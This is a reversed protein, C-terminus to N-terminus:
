ITKQKYPLPEIGQRFVRAVDRSNHNMVATEWAAQVLQDRLDNETLLREIAAQIAEPQIDSVVYGFGAKRAYQATYTEDRAVVLMPVGSLMADVTKTPFATRLIADLPSGEDLVVLILDAKRQEDLVQDPPHFNVKWRPSDPLGSRVLESRSLKNFIELRVDRTPALRDLATIVQIMSHVHTHMEVSGAYVIKVPSHDVPYASKLVPNFMEPPLSHRLITYQRVGLRNKLDAALGESLWLHEYNKLLSRRWSREWPYPLTTDCYYLYLPLGTHCHVQYASYVYEPGPIVGLIGTFHEKKVLKMAQQTRRWIWLWELGDLKFRRVVRELLDGMHIVYRPCDLTSAAWERSAGSRVSAQTFVVFEDSSFESFLSGLVRPTGSVSPPFSKSFVLLRLADAKM